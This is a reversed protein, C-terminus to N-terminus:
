EALRKLTEGHLRNVEELADLFAEDPLLAAPSIILKNGDTTVDVPQAPDIQVKKLLTPDIVLAHADGHRVLNTKM